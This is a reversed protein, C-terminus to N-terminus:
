ENGAGKISSILTIIKRVLEIPIWEIRDIGFKNKLLHNLADFRAKDTQMKSVEWWMMVIKVLQARTAMGDRAGLSQLHTIIDYKSVLTDRNDAILVGKQQAHRILIDILENAENIGFNADKSSSCGFSSLMVRYDDDAICAKSKLVHIYTIQKKTAM